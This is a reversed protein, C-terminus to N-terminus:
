GGEFAPANIAGDEQLATADDRPPRLTIAAAAAAASMGGFVLLPAAFSGDAAILVAALPPGIATAGNRVGNVVGKIAGLADIGFYDPWVISNAAGAAGAGLGLLAGYLLAGPVGNLPLAMSAFALVTLGMSLTVAYRSPVRELALGTGYTMVVSALAFAMFAPPVLAAGWGQDTFLAVQHFIVATMVLPPVSLCLLMGWFVPLRLTERLSFSREDTPASAAAVAEPLAADGDMPEKEERERLLVGVLPVFLLLYLAALVVLSGRWGLAEILAYIAGPFIMEGFAYGLSVVALARGRYRRFWRVTLTLTGLGIAGQGLLRLAFFALGLAAVSEVRSAFLMALALLLLVPVLFRRGTTRDSWGGIFPLCVAAALTAVAYLSSLEVRSIGLDTILHELYLSIAFSQGPSSLASCLFGLGVVAWGYYRPNPFFRSWIRAFAQMLIMESSFS